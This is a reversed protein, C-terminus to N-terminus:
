HVTFENFIPVFLVLLLIIENFDPLNLSPTTLLTAMM